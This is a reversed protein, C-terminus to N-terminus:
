YKTQALWKRVTNVILAVFTMVIPTYVGFDVGKIADAVYTLGASTATILFGIWISKLDQMILQGKESLVVKKM